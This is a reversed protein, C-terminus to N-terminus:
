ADRMVLPLGVMRRRDSKRRSSVVSGIAAPQPAASGAVGVGGGAGAGLGGGGGAVAVAAGVLVGAGVLV